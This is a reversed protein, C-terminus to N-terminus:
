DQPSSTMEEPGTTTDEVERAKIQATKRAKIKELLGNVEMEVEFTESKKTVDVLDALYQARLEREPETLHNDTLRKDTKYM